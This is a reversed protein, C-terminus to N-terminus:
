ERRYKRCLPGTEGVVVERELAYGAPPPTDDLVAEEGVLVVVSPELRAMVRELRDTPAERLLTAFLTMEGDPLDDTPSAQVFKYRDNREFVDNMEGIRDDAPLVYLPVALDATSLAPCPYTTYELLYETEVLGDLTEIVSDRDFRAEGAPVDPHAVGFPVATRRCYSVIRDRIRKWRRHRVHVRVPISDVSSVKALSLRHTGDVFLLEGNRGVDVTLEDFRYVTTRILRRLPDSHDGEGQLDFFTKYNGRDIEAYIRDLKEFHAEVSERSDFRSAYLGDEDDIAELAKRYYVTESWDVNRDYREEISGYVERAYDEWTISDLDWDGGRVRPILVWKSGSIAGSRGSRKTVHEPSVEIMELVRYDPRVVALLSSVVLSACFLLLQVPKSEGLSTVM